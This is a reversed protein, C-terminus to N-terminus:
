EGEVWPNKKKAKLYQWGLKLATRFVPVKAKKMLPMLYSKVFALLTPMEEGLLGLEQRFCEIHPDSWSSWFMINNAVRVLPDWNCPDFFIGAWLQAWEKATSFEDGITSKKWTDEYVKLGKATVDGGAIAKAAAEAAMKGSLMAYYVGEAELPCPFGAADGVLLVGNGFTNSPVRPMWPLLHAHFERPKAGVKNIFQQLPRSRVVEKLYEYPRKAAGSTFKGLWQGFGVHFGGPMTAIYTAPYLPSVFVNNSYEEPGIVDDLKQQSAEFDCDVVLTIEDPKWKERLGACKAVRSFAGDAGIIVAGEIKEGKDTVVGTVQGKEDKLLDTVLASAQLEAGADTALKALWPDLESRYVNAQFFERGEAYKGLNSPSWRIMFRENLEKDLLHLTQFKIKLSPMPMEKIFPFDRWVRPSLGCGSSAKEGPKRAREIFITKLGKESATKAALSGGPGGGVIVVDYKKTM